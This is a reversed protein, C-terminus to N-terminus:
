VGGAVTAVKEVKGGLGPNAASFIRKLIVGVATGPNTLTALVAMIMVVTDVKSSKISDRYPELVGEALQQFKSLKEKSLIDSEIKHVLQLGKILEDPNAIKDGLSLYKSAKGITVPGDVTKFADAKAMDRLKTAKKRIVGMLPLGTAFVKNLAMSVTNIFKALKTAFAKAKAIIGYEGRATNGVVEGAKSWAKKHMRNVYNVAGSAVLGAANPRGGYVNEEMSIVIAEMSIDYQEYDYINSFERCIDELSVSADLFDVELQGSKQYMM